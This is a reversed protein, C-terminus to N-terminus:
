RYSVGHRYKVSAERSIVDGVGAQLTGITDKWALVAIFESDEIVNSITNIV